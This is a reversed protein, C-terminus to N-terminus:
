LTLPETHDDRLYIRAGRVIGTVTRGAPYVRSIELSEVDGLIVKGNHVEIGRAM